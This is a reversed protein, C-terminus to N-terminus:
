FKNAQKKQLENCSDIGCCSGKSCICKNKGTLKRFFARCAWLISTTVILVVLINEIM